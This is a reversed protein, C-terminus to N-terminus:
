SAKLTVTKATETARAQLTAAAPNWTLTIQRERLYGIVEGPSVTGKVDAGARTRRRARAAGSTLAAPVPRAPAAPAQGRPRLHEEAPVLETGDRQHPRTPAPVGGQRQVLSVGDAARVRRMAVVPLKVIESIPPLKTLVDTVLYTDPLPLAGCATHASSRACDATATGPLRSSPSAPPHAPLTLTHISEPNRCQGTRGHGLQGVHGPQEVLVPLVVALGAAGACVRAQSVRWVRERCSVMKVACRPGSRAPRAVVTM